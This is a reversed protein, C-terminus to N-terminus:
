LAKIKRASGFGLVAKSECIGALFEDGLIHAGGCPSKDARYERRTVRYLRKNMGEFDPLSPSILVEFEVACM